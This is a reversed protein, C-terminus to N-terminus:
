PIWEKGHVIFQWNGRYQGLEGYIRLRQTARAQDRLLSRLEGRHSFVDYDLGGLKIKVHGRENVSADAELDFIRGNYTGDRIDAGAPLESIKVATKFLDVPSVETSLATASGEPTTSPNSLPIWKDRPGPGVHRFRAHLPYHDSFGGPVRGRSWRNPLGLANANLGPIKLVAFSNDLYQIGNQDYLGRVFILHMLTGWEGRFTDSGRQDSPLEFWLNYLDRDRGRIALENGQSGLIDNIATTRMDRYRQKQNYHSNLDGAVLIDANPDKKLLEDLRARQVRANSRRIEEAAPDGAGSKWHNVFVTLPSGSVDLTVELIARASELPHSRVATIPFRSFILNCVATPPREDTTAVHYGTLGAESFAKLLWAESPLGALEPPLPNRGTMDALKLHAVSKLWAPYDTVTSDPTQDGEIENFVVVAPGAGQDVRSIVQAINVVKVRLHEPTYTAPQYDDYQAVGDLDFLNEVNYVVVAFTGDASLAPPSAPPTPEITEARSTAVLLLASALLFLRALPFTQRIIM